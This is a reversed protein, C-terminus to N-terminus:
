VIAIAFPDRDPRIAPAKAFARVAEARNETKADGQAEGEEEDQSPRPRDRRHRRRREAPEADGADRSEQQLEVVRDVGGEEIEPHMRRCDGDDYSRAGQCAARGAEHSCGGGSRAAGRGDWLFDKGPRYGEPRPPRVQFRSCATPPSPVAM